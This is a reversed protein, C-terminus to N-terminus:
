RACSVCPGGVELGMGGKGGCECRHKRAYRGDALKGRGTMGTEGKQWLNTGLGMSQM